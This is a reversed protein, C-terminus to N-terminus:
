ASVGAHEWAPARAGAGECASTCTADPAREAMSPPGARVPLLSPLGWLDGSVWGSAGGRNGHAHVSLPPLAAPSKWTAAPGAHALGNRDSAGGGEPSFPGPSPAGSPAQSSSGLSGAMPPRPRFPCLHTKPGERPAGGSARPREGSARGAERQPEPGSRPTWGSRLHAMTIDQTRGLLQGREAPPGSARAPLLLMRPAM